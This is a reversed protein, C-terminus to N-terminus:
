LFVYKTLPGAAAPSTPYTAAAGGSRGAPVAAAAARSQGGM